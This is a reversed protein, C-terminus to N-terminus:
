SIPQLCPRKKHMEQAVSIADVCFLKGVKNRVVEANHVWTELHSKHPFQVQLDCLVEGLLVRSFLLGPVFLNPSHTYKANLIQSRRHFPASKQQRV